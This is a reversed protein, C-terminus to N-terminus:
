PGAQVKLVRGARPRGGGALPGEGWLGGGGWAGCRDVAWEPLLQRIWECAPGEM